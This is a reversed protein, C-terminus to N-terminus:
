VSTGRYWREVLSLTAQGLMHTKRRYNDLPEWQIDTQVDCVRVQLTKDEKSHLSYAKLVPKRMVTTRSIKRVVLLEQAQVSSKPDSTVHARTACLIRPPTHKSAALESVNKFVYGQLAAKFNNSRSWVHPFVFVLPLHKTFVTRCM